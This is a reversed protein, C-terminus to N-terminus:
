CAVEDEDDLATGATMAKLCGIVALCDGHARHAGGLRQWRYNGHRESWEGYWASYPEMADEWTHRAMWAAAPDTGDLHLELEHRIRATDYARNYILVRKGALANELDPLTKAFTPAAAVMADTIGHIDTSEAPIPVGPNVLTNLLTEGAATVVAIDVIRATDHLGTTETDLIVTNPDALADVAWQRLEALEDRRAAEAAQERAREEARAQIMEAERRQECGACFRVPFYTNGARLHRLVEQKSAHRVTCGYRDRGACWQAREVRRAREAAKEARQERLCPACLLRKLRQPRLSSCRRCTRNYVATQRADDKRYCDGCQKGHIVYGKVESCRPCTHSIRYAWADGIRRPPLAEARAPDYLAALTKYYRVRIYAAPQQGPAPRLRRVELASRTLLHAPATGNAYLPIESIRGIPEATATATGAAM